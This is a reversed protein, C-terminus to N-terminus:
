GLRMMSAGQQDLDKIERVIRISNEYNRSFDLMKVMTNVASVNAGELMGSSVSAVGPGDEFDGNALAFERHPELLGDVSRRLPTESADRLFLRGVEVSEEEPAEPDLAYITGDASINFRAERPLTIPEGAEGLVAQGGPLQLVGDQSIRLDGRRTFKVGGNGDDVGLVTSDNMAIDLPQGTVMRSGASLDIVDVTRVRPMFRSEFGAGTVKMADRAVEFSRKFGTTSVNALENTVTQFELRQANIASLATYALHDM